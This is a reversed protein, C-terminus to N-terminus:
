GPRAPQLHQEDAAGDAVLAPGADEGLLPHLGQGEGDEQGQGVVHPDAHAVDPHIVDLGSAHAQHQVDEGDDPEQTRGPSPWELERSARFGHGCGCGKGLALEVDDDDAGAAGAHAGRQLERAGAEVHGHEGLHEGGTRVGHSGLAADAGREAVHVLVVPVVVEVVGDLAGVPQAVLVGDLEHATFGGLDDVVQLVHAHREVAVGVAGDVLAREAAVGGVVAFLRHLAGAGRGVAGAVGHQVRQVLLVHL